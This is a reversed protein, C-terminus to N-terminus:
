PMPESRECLQLSLGWPDRLMAMRDGSANEAVGGLASAGAAVLREHDAHADDTAFAIHLLLPNMTAYDPVEDPLARYIELMLRGSSDALFHTDAPPTGTQVVKMQLHSSYWAAMAVPDEINIAFHEVFLAM